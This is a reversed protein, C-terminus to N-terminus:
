RNSRRRFTAAILMTGILSGVVPEPVSNYVLMGSSLTNGFNGRWLAFQLPGVPGGVVDNPLSNTTGLNNRWVVYDAADVAGNDNFDGALLPAASFYFSVDTSGYEPWPEGSTTDGIYVRYSASYQSLTPDLVAYTNHTMSGSWRWRSPSGGTGFIPTYAPAAPPRQYVELGPTASLPEIWIWGGAPLSIFGGPNWGYQFNYAKDTLVSWPMSPDFAHPPTLARLQPTAVTDDVQVALNTGDFTIDAHKMPAAGQGVQGGGIQPIVYEAFTQSSALLMHVVAIRLSFPM